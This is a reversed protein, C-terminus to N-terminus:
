AVSSLGLTEDTLLYITEATFRADPDTLAAVQVLECIRTLQAPSGAGFEVIQDIADTTLRDDDVNLSRLKEVSFAHADTEGLLPLRVRLASQSNFAPNLTHEAAAIVTVAGGTQENLAILFKVMLILDESASHLDDLIVVTRHNCLARGSIEDRIATMLESRGHDSQPSISLGGCLHWLFSTEDLAAVNIVVGSQGARRCELLARNLVTTKGAGHEAMLLVFPEGQDVTYILRNLAEAHANTEFYWPKGLPQGFM